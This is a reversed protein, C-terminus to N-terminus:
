VCVLRSPAFILACITTFAKFSILGSFILFNINFYHLFPNTLLVIAEYGLSFVLSIHLLIKFILSGTILFMAEYRNVAM